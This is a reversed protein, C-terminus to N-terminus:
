QHYSLHQIHKVIYIFDHDRNFFDYDRNYCHFNHNHHDNCHVHDTYHEHINPYINNENIHNGHCDSFDVDHHDTDLVLVDLKNDQQILNDHSYIDHEYLHHNNLDHGHIDHRHIDHRHIDHYDYYVVFFDHDISHIFECHFEIDNIDGNDVDHKHHDRAPSQWWTSWNWYVASCLYSGLSISVRAAATRARHDVRQRDDRHRGWGVTRHPGPGLHLRRWRGDASRLRRGPPGPPQDGESTVRLCAPGGSFRRRLVEQGLGTHHRKAEIGGGGRDGRFHRRCGFGLRGSPCRPLCHM